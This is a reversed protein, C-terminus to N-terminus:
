RVTVEITHHGTAGDPAVDTRKATQTYGTGDTARVAITHEGPTADWRYLWQRWSDVDLEAALTAEQWPGDDIQVEVRDIGRTPAWAVGAIARRGAAITSRSPVDIRSQTKIPGEKAWGRPIWYGDFEDLRTLELAALWKTASVYGYLGPVVLRAPFGHQVPLPEGNMAVAVMAEEDEIAKRTPFGATFNDVSRGVIQTADEHVGARELLLHLPVGQWRANGVLHGGVENSVCALTVDAELQPMALLEEYTVGFPHDVRGRVQLSWHAPDVRPVTLATDIRYFADNPVYLKSIGPVRLQAGAPAPPARHVAQPLRIAQRIRNIRENSTLARGGLAGVGAVLVAAGALGLFRARDLRAGETPDAAPVADAPAERLLLWLTAVGALASLAGVALPAAGDTQPDAFSAATGVAAMAAIGTAGLAFSRAAVLGLGAGLLGSVVLLCVILFPKDNTGLADIVARELWGPTRDIVEDGVAVVHSRAGDVVAALLEGIGLTVAIACLGALAAYAGSPRTRAGDHKAGDGPDSV